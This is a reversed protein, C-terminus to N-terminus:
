PRLSELYESEEQGSLESATWSKDPRRIWQVGSEKRWTRLAELSSEFSEFSERAAAVLNDPAGLDAYTDLLQQYYVSNDHRHVTIM